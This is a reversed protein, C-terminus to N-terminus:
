KKDENSGPVTRNENAEKPTTQKDTKDTTEIMHNEIPTREHFLVVWNGDRKLLIFYFVGCGCASVITEGVSNRNKKGYAISVDYKDDGGSFNVTMFHRNLPVDEYPTVIYENKKSKCKLRGPIKHSGDEEWRVVVMVPKRKELEQFRIIPKKKFINNESNVVLDIAKCWQAEVGGSAGWAVGNSFLIASLVFLIGSVSSYGEHM